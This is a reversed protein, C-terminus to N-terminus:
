SAEDFVLVEEPLRLAALKSQFQRAFSPPLRESWRKAVGYDVCIARGARYPNSYHGFICFADDHYDDWWPVREEFRLKGSAWFPPDIRREPGSTLIKVPNQNQHELGRDIEDLDPRSSLRAEIMREHHECLELV